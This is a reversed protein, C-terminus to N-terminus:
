HIVTNLQHRKKIIFNNEENILFVFSARHWWKRKDVLTKPATGIIRNNQDVVVLDEMLNM